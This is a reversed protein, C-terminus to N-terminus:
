TLIQIETATLFRNNYPGGVTPSGLKQNFVM